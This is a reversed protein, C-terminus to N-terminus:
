PASWLRMLGEQATSAVLAGDRRFIQGRALGRAGSSSPNDMAYLLWDDVRVPRHFWMGHDLSAMQVKDSHYAVEHPFLVTTVLHFDSAYALLVNHLDDDDPLKDVARFWVYNIPERPGPHDFDPTEVFRFEFPRKRSFFRVLRQPVAPTLDGALDTAPVLSEPEPVDPMSVQHELGDEPKQFSASLNFIQHGHQVAVVRRMSFSLGDRARDVDYVIPANVDGPRLFYAHLSHVHRSRLTHMAAKLAQALVQGGFVRESGIDRSEGRFLNVELRELELHSLLDKLIAKM